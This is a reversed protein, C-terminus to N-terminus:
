IREYIARTSEYHHNELYIYYKKTTEGLQIKLTYKNFYKEHKVGSLVKLYFCQVPLCFNISHSNKTIKASDDIALQLRCLRSNGPPELTVTVDGSGNHNTIEIMRSKGLHIETNDTPESDAIWPSSSQNRKFLKINFDPSDVEPPLNFTVPNILRLLDSPDAEFESYDDESESNKGNNFDTSNLAFSFWSIFCVYYFLYINSM